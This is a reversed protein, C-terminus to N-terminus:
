LYTIYINVLVVSCGFFLWVWGRKFLGGRAIDESPSTPQYPLTAFHYDKFWEHDYCGVKMQWLVKRFKGFNLNLNNTEQEQLGLTSQPRLVQSGFKRNWVFWLTRDFTIIVKRALGSFSFSSSSWILYRVLSGCCIKAYIVNFVINIIFNYQFTFLLDLQAM